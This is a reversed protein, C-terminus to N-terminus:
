GMQCGTYVPHSLSSIHRFPKSFIIFWRVDGLGCGGDHLAVPWLNRRFPPVLGPRMDDAKTRPRDALAAVVSVSDLPSCAAIVHYKRHRSLRLKYQNKFIANEVRFLKIGPTVAFDAVDGTHFRRRGSEKFLEVALSPCFFYPYALLEIAYSFCATGTRVPRYRAMGCRDAALIGM